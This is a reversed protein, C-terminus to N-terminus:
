GSIYHELQQILFQQDEIIAKVMDGISVMGLLEGDEMVPLHRFHKDTMLAMCQEVTEEPRGSMVRRTMVEHVPTERSARGALAVKRAYDRESILGVLRDNELVALAGLNKQNMMELAAYVTEDPGISWVTSGKVKLVDKLTKM